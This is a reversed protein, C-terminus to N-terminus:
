RINQSHTIATATNSTCRLKRPTARDPYFGTCNQNIDGANGDDSQHDRSFKRNGHSTM